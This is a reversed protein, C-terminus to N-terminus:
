FRSQNYELYGASRSFSIIKESGLDEIETKAVVLLYHEYAIALFRCQDIPGKM